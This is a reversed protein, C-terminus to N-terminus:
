IRRMGAQVQVRVFFITEFKEGVRKELDWRDIGFARLIGVDVAARLLLNARSSPLRTGGNM